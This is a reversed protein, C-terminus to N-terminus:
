NILTVGQMPEAAIFARTEVHIGLSQELVAAVEALPQTTPKFTGSNNDIVLSGTGSLWCEGAFFVESSYNGIFYHKTVLRNTGSMSSRAVYLRSGVLVFTYKRGRKLLQLFGDGSIDGLPEFSTEMQSRLSRLPAFLDRVKQQRLHDGEIPLRAPLPAALPLHVMYLRPLKQAPMSGMLAMHKSRWIQAAHLPNIVALWGLFVMMGVVARRYLSMVM